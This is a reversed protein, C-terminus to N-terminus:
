ARFVTDRHWELFERSPQQQGEQPVWVRRGELPYYPEGNDFDDKLRQSVEFRYDPTVTVYGRDYLRHLDARLLMGNNVDHRGGESVPWIHAAELVPLAKEQTVACRRQYVDTILSRFAGQGLRPRITKPDGYLDDQILDTEGPEEGVRQGQLRIRVEEWLRRGEPETTDYGKGVQIHSSFGEPVRIWEERDFFFLNTLIICGVVHDEHPDPDGGRYKLIRLRLDHLSAVGNREKFFDWATRYPLQSYHAFFGGGAIFRHHPSHLKFLLPEGPSLARFNQAGSPKWFNAEDRVEQDKLYQYWDNDTVAVFLRM